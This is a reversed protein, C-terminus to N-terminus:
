PCPGIPAPPPPAGSSSASATCSGTGGNTYTYDSTKTFNNADSFRWTGSETYDPANATWTFVTGCLTGTGSWDGSSFAYEGSGSGATVTIPASEDQDACIQGEACNYRETFTGAIDFAPAACDGPSGIRLQVLSSGPWAEHFLIPPSGLQRLRITITGESLAEFYSETFANVRTATGLVEVPFVEGTDRRECCGVSSGDFERGRPSGGEDICLDVRRLDVKGDAAECFAPECREDLGCPEPYDWCDSWEGVEGGLDERCEDLNSITPRFSQFSGDPLACCACGNTFYDPTLEDNLPDGCEIVPAVSCSATCACHSQCTEATTVQRPGTVFGPEVPGEPYPLPLDCCVPQQPGKGPCRWISTDSGGRADCAASTSLEYNNPGIECCVTDCSKIDTSRAAVGPLASDCVPDLVTSDASYPTVGWRIGRQSTHEVDGGDSSTIDWQYLPPMATLGARADSPLDDLGISCQFTDGVNIEVVQEGGIILPEESGDTCWITLSQAAGGTSEPPSSCSAVWAAAGFAASSLLLFEIRSTM